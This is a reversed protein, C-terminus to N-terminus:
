SGVTLYITLLSGLKLGLCNLESSDAVLLYGYHGEGQFCLYGLTIEPYGLNIFNWPIYIKSNSFDYM